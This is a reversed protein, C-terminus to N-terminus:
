SMASRWSRSSSTLDVGKEVIGQREGTRRITDEFVVGAIVGAPGGRKGKLYYDAHDLFDDFVEVRAAEAVKAIVGADVDALAAELIATLGGVAKHTMAIAAARSRHAGLRDPFMVELVNLASAVWGESEFILERGHGDDWQPQSRAIYQGRAILTRIRARLVDDIKM